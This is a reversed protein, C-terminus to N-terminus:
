SMHGTIERIMWNYKEDRSLRYLIDYAYAALPYEHREMSRIGLNRAANLVINGAGMQLKERILIDEIEDCSPCPPIGGYKEALGSIETKALINDDYELSLYFMAAATDIDNNAAYWRGYNRYCRAIDEETFAYSIAKDTQERFQTYMGKMRYLEALELLCGVSVPNWEVATNLVFEAEDLRDQMILCYGYARYIEAVNLDTNRVPKEPNFEDLFICHELPQEFSQFSGEEDPDYRENLLAIVASFLDGGHKYDKKESAWLIAEDMAAHICIDNNALCKHVADKEDEPLMEYALKIILRVINYSMSSDPISDLYMQLFAPDVSGDARLADSIAAILDYNETDM